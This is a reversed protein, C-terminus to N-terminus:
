ERFIVELLTQGVAKLTSKDVHELKDNHTHWHKYFNSPSKPDHQIIDIAPINAYQNIYVHDDTIAHIEKYIFYDSYGLRSATGWVKKVVWSAYEVSHREIAFTANQAGVMDLLVAFQATYGPTHFNKAWYQSGLCWSDEMSPFESFDTEGYDELDFLIIDVGTNPSSLSLLRAIEILVGVGSGGDNAGDSPENKNERDQDSFPRTDWHACLLIRNKKEKQFSAIINKLTHTKGDFTKIPASQVLVDPTYSKLKEVMWGACEEHAKTGPVRPGFAVQKEIFSFASDANFLPTPVAAKKEVPATTKQERGNEPSCSILTFLPILFYPFLSIILKIYSHTKKM